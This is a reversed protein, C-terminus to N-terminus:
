SGNLIRTWMRTRERAYTQSEAPVLHLRLREDATPYVAPDNRLAAAVLSTAERNANAYRSANSVEAIVAPELLYNLFRYAADVHPADAPIALLDVWMLAGEKPVVYRIEAGTRLEIASDRAQVMEGNPGITICIDGSALDSRNRSGSEIYRVYPRVRLFASEVARLDNVDDTAPDRGIALLGLDAMISGASDQWTIGCGQLRKANAPDFLLAWSSEPEHGLARTVLKVNYAFAHTGWVYPVGYENGPDIPALAALIGADLHQWNPLRSKDLKQLAGAAILPQIFNSSPVAVDTGSHGTLLKTQLSVNDPIEEVSVRIGTRHEFGPLTNAGIEGEWNYFYLTTASEATRPADRECGAIAALAIVACVCAAVAESRM